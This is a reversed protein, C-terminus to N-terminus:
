HNKVYLIYDIKINLNTIYINFPLFLNGTYNKVYKKGYKM